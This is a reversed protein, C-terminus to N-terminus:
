PRIEPPYVRWIAGRGEVGWLEVRTITPDFGFFAAAREATDAIICLFPDLDYKM